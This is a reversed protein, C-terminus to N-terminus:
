PKQALEERVARTCEGRPGIESNLFNIYFAFFKDWEEQGEGEYVGAIPAKRLITRM